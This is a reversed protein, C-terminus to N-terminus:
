GIDPMDTFEIYCNTYSPPQCPSADIEFVVIDNLTPSPKLINAPVYLTKQPGKAPWYRGLNFNNIFAVGKSWNALSLFTDNPQKGADFTAHFFVATIAPTSQTDLKQFSLKETNNLPYSYSTWDSIRKNSAFVGNIIGKQDNIYSGYNIRGMNEVLLELPGSGASSANITFTLNGAVQGPRTLVGYYQSNWYISARDHLESIIIPFSSATSSVNDNKYLMFGFDQEMEEFTSPDDGSRQATAISSDFLSVYGTMAVKGYAAKPTAPPVSSPVPEYKQIVNRILTFKDTPDGAESLPADYDYSTPQPSYNNGGSNAGNWFGFNTGGEFMYMNVSVNMKLLIDLSNAFQTGDRRQHPGGWHDLWGTYFESNVLPGHAEYQRQPSFNPKTTVGFDVTAYLDPVLAGCKLYGNGDGDTTFLITNPGLYQRFTMGLHKLYNKDCTFYSGYENEVQVSIIPGGNEYLLPVLKPFLVSYWEDVKRLYGADSSRLVISTNRLLWSPLGGMEWEGCIYPGARLVVLLGAEQALKLFQVVDYDGDFRFVDPFPNHFNWPVYTQVANLGAARMKTLRDKWYFAPVRSYHLSGSIYRYLSWSLLLCINM